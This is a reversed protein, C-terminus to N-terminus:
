KELKLTLSRQEIKQRGRVENEKNEKGCKQLSKIMIYRPKIKNKM